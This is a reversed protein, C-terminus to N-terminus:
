RPERRGGPPPPRPISGPRPATGRPGPRVGPPLPRNVQQPPRGGPTRPPGQPRPGRRRRLQAAGIMEKPVSAKLMDWAFMMLVINFPVTVRREAGFPSFLIDWLMLFGIFTIMPGLPERVMYLNALVRFVLVLVWGWFIAGMLGAEVWGGMFHSHTPILDSEAAIYNVDYGFRELELIRVAYAPNRAWSGHGILPSDMVAQSSVFIESRGGLLVGFSGSGQQEYVQQAFEGLHGESAAFQYSNFLMLAVGLGGVFFLFTRVPSFGKPAVNRRGLIQQVLVYLAALITIAALSRSGVVMSYVGVSGIMLAPLFWIKFVPKWQSLVVVLLITSVGLGFKWPQRAAFDSPNFMFTLYGGIAIGLAFLVIRQRSGYLLMYLTCFNMSTFIIKSWGRSYDRFDSDRILDTLIQSALWLGALILFFRPLPAALMRGRTLLMFPLLGILILEPAFIRGVLNFELFVVTPTFFAIAALILNNSTEAQDPSYRGAPRLPAYRTQATANTM